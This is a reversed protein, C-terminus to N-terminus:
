WRLRQYWFATSSYVAQVTNENGHEIGYNISKTFPISEAIMLRYASDCVATCGFAGEEHSPEGNLPDTFPGRNWYWGGEYFDETGTGHLQPSGSGNVYGIDDGELYTRNPGEMTQSIGVLKGPGRVQLFPWDVGPRTTGAHSTTTFYGARGARSLQYGWFKSRASVVRSTGGTITRASFNALQVRARSRYPMPWWSSLWGNPSPDAAFMLARVPYKGLGSGFFEGLPSDVTRHGDFSILLRVRRALEASATAAAVGRAPYVYTCTGKWTEGHISYAHGAEDSVSTPGVNVTDSREWQTGVRSDVWYSFENFGSDTFANFDYGSSIFQNRITIQSKGATVSAPLEVTENAWQGRGTAPLPAWEGAPIGDVFVEARQSGVVTDLRRTLRVGDNGPYIHVTFQSYGGPGFARGDDRIAPNPVPGVLQRIRLQLSSIAGPGRLNALTAVQGPALHFSRMTTRAGRAPPKPDGYGAGGLKSLVDLARDFPNFTHVGRPMAFTRYFVHYYDPNRATTIRMSSRFPMPVKIYVGGSSLDANAVLPYLFPAGLDGDAVSQLPADLVTRGDLVIKINGTASVDGGDRTFWISDIQGPGNHQALVCGDHDRHLCAYRGGDDNGGTRDYSSVEYERVGSPIEPLLDLHRYVDWGVLGDSSQSPTAAGSSAPDFALLALALVVGITARTV